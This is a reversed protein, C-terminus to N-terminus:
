RSWDTISNSDTVQLTLMQSPADMTFGASHAKNFSAAPRPLILSAQENYTQDINPDWQFSAKNAMAQFATKTM